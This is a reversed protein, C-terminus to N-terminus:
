LCEICRKHLGKTFRGHLAMWVLLVRLKWGNRVINVLGHAIPISLCIFICADIYIRCLYLCLHLPSLYLFTSCHLSMGQEQIWLGRFGVYTKFEFRQAKFWFFARFVSM